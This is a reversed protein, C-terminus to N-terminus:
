TLNQLFIRYLYADMAVADNRGVKLRYGELAVLGDIDTCEIQSYVARNAAVPAAAVVTGGGSFSAGTFPFVDAQEREFTVTWTVGALTAAGTWVLTVLIGSGSYLSSLVSSFRADYSGQPFEICRHGFRLKWRAWGPLFTNIAHYHLVTFREILDQAM